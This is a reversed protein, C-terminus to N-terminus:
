VKTSFETFDSNKNKQGRSLPTLIQFEDLFAWKKSGENSLDQHSSKLHVFTHKMDVKKNEKELRSHGRSNVWYHGRSKVWFHGRFTVWFHGRFTM